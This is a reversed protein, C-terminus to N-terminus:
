RLRGGSRSNASTPYSTLWDEGPIHPFGRFNLFNDFKDRCTAARKDCGTVLAVRDGARPAVGFASWISIERAADLRRDMRVLAAQGAGEGDLIRLEGREFWRDAFGDMPAFGLRYGEEIWLIEAETRYGPISLDFRCRTDGLAADCGGQFVRGVTRNLADTLGRLEVRFSGGARTIDGTRGAFELMREGPDAWNVLWVRVEAGDYRGAAIDRETVADSSLVGMAESKDAAMGTVQELARATLGTDAAFRIGEFELDRDHDTFGLVVGDTRSVSWARCVTTAGSALHALLKDKAESM